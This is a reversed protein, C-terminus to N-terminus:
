SDSDEDNVQIKTQCVFPAAPKVNGGVVPHHAGPEIWGINLCPFWVGRFSSPGINPLIHKPDLTSVDIDVIVEVDPDIAYGESELLFRADDMSYATVGFGPLGPVDFWFRRLQQNAGRM